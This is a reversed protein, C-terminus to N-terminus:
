VGVEEAGAWGADEEVGALAQGGPLGVEGGGESGLGCGDRCAEERVPVVVVDGPEGVQQVQARVGFHVLV